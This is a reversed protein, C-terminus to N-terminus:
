HGGQSGCYRQVLCGFDVPYYGSGLALILLHPCIDVEM